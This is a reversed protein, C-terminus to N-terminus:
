EEEQQADRIADCAMAGFLGVLKQRDPESLQDELECWLNAAIKIFFVATAVTAQDQNELIEDQRVWYGHALQEISEALVSVLDDKQIEARREEMERLIALEKPDPLPVVSTPDGGEPDAQLLWDAKPVMSRCRQCGIADWSFGYVREENNCRPCYILRGAQPARTYRTVRDVKAAADKESKQKSVRTAM